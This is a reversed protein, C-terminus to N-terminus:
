PGSTWPSREKAIVAMGTQEEPFWGDQSVESWKPADFLEFCGADEVALKFPVNEDGFFLPDRM